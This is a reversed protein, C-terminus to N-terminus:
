GLEQDINHLYRIKFAAVIDLRTNNDALSKGLINEIKNLRYRLTNPHLFLAKATKSVDFQNDAFNELINMLSGESDDKKHLEGLVHIYYEKLDQLDHKYLIRELGLESFFPVPINLLRGMECSVKAEQYSRFLDVADSYAQGIGCAIRNKLETAEAHTFIKGAFELIKTKQKSPKEEQAPILIVLENQRVITPPNKYYIDIFVQEVIRLLLDMLHWEPSHHELETLILIAVCHPLRFDWGWMEGTAIIEENRKLNGYLLDYLFSNKYKSLEQKLELRSQLHVACLSATYDILTKNLKPQPENEEWLIFIYGIICGAPAIAQGAARAQFTGASLQCLFLTNNDAKPNDFEVQFLEFDYRNSASLLKYSPSSVLVPQNLLKALTLVLKDLGQGSAKILEQMYDPVTFSNDM